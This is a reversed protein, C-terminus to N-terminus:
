LGDGGILEQQIALITELAEDMDGTIDLKLQQKEQETLGFPLTFRLVAHSDTGLNEVGAPSGQIVSHVKVRAAPGQKGDFDGREKMALLDRATQEAKQAAQQTQAVAALVQEYVTPTFPQSDSAAGPVTGLLYVPRVMPVTTLVAVTDSKKRYGHCTLYLAGRGCVQRPLPTKGTYTVQVTHEGNQLTVVKVLGDWEKDFDITFTDCAATDACLTQTGKKTLKRGCVFFELNM